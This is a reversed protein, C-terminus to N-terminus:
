NLKGLVQMCEWVVFSETTTKPLAARSDSCIQIRRRMINKTLLLETCRLVSIVEASFVMGMPICAKRITICYLPGYIGTGFCDHIGSGDTFWLDVNPDIIKHPTKWDQRTPVWIKFSKVL